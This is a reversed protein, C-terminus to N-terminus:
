PQRSQKTLLFEKTASASDFGHTDFFRTHAVHLYSDIRSDIRITQKCNKATDSQHGQSLLIAHLDTAIHGSSGGIGCVSNIQLTSLM